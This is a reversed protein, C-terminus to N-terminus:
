NSNSYKKEVNSWEESLKIRPPFELKRLFDVSRMEWCVEAETVFKTLSTWAVM